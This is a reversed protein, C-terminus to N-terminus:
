LFHKRIKQWDDTAFVTGIDHMSLQIENDDGYADAGQLFVVLPVIESCEPVFLRYPLSGSYEFTGYLFKHCTSKNESSPKDWNAPLNM